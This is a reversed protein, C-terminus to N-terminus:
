DIFLFENANLLTRCVTELGHDKALRGCAEIEDARPRRGFALRFALDIQEPVAKASGRLRNAFHEAHRVMFKHNLLALAQPATITTYRVPTSLSADPCDLREMLPDAVSRVLLRYISRRRSAASDVDFKAYDYHPSHDDKFAFHRVSPGGMKLDLRGSVALVGDRVCEAELRRRHGRWLLRNSADKKAPEARHASSQRYTSSSLILKHLKKFSGGGDRFWTALWDLLEPHSPKGGMRGFDNPSLVLGQGFHYHWVRNVISRWTLPNDEDIVWRALAVRRAGENDSKIRAFHHALQPVSSLAGASVEEGPLKVEGRKLVHIPRIGKPPRFAGSPKFDRAAAYVRPRPPLAALQDRCEPLRLFKLKLFEVRVSTPLAHDLIHTRQLDLRAFTRGLLFVKWLARGDLLRARSTYGDTLNPKSWSPKAEISDKATVTAGAAVNKGGSFAVLESLAFIWDGTRKWLRTATVRIYRGRIQHGEFEAPADTPHPSDHDTQDYLTEFKAFTPDESVDIRFRPPFGFAPGPHGGFKVHAPFLLVGDLPLSRGLDVQVWKTRNANKEINSHYGLTRSKEAPNTVPAQDRQKNNKEIKADLAELRPDDVADRLSQIEAVRIEIKSRQAELERRRGSTKPDPYSRNAREVGAFVAQLRYYDRQKIPDFKHDHCRACHATTSVFTSMATTVMDDRDLNRTIKKDVTGERLEVHGVFDWPGAAIFGTAVIGDRHDPFLVDGALQEKVFRAYPKDENFARIVYDRYPWANQRLKDKDYGHTEGYHVVDLWHRGWREGYRPSALLRDVLRGYADPRRSAVFADIEAPTPPLGHLNYTLRRILTERGAAASPELDAGRLRELTFADVPNRVWKSDMAPVKPTKLPRLSWWDTTREVGRDSGGSAALLAALTVVLTLLNRAPRHMPPGLM